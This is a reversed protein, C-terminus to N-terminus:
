EDRGDVIGDLPQEILRRALAVVRRSLARDIRDGFEVTLATDGSALFRIEPTPSPTMPM